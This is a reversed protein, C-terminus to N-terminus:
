SQEVGEDHNDNVTRPLKRDSDRQAGDVTIRGRRRDPTVRRLVRCRWPGSRSNPSPITLTSVIPIGVNSITVSRRPRHGCAIPRDWNAFAASLESPTARVDGVCQELEGGDCRGPFQMHPEYRSMVAAVPPGALTFPANTRHHAAVTTCSHATPWNSRASMGCTVVFRRVASCGEKTQPM